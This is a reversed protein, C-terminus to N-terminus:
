LTSNAIRKYTITVLAGEMFEDDHIGSLIMTNKDLKLVNFMQTEEGDDKSTVIILSRANRNYTYIGYSINDHDQKIVEGSKNFTMTNQESPDFDVEIKSGNLEMTMNIVHWTGYLLNIDGANKNDKSCSCLTIVALTAIAICIIRKM